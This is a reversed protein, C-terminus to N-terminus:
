PSSCCRFGLSSDTLSRPNNNNFDCRDSTTDDNTHQFSGGRNRCFDSAGTSATCSDEWEMLNGGMDYLGAYGGVCGAFHGVSSPGFVGADGSNCKGVVHAAGYPWASNSAGGCAHMWQSLAPNDYSNLDNTGGGIKGCLRKGAWACYAYADCWDVWAIPMDYDEAAPPWGQTPQFSTNWSCYSPQGSTSGAKAALFMAYRGTTVETADISYSGASVQGAVCVGNGNYTSCQGGGVCASNAAQNAVGCVHNTCVARLCSNARPAACDADVNCAYCVGLSCHPTAGSCDSATVLQGSAGCTQPANNSCSVPLGSGVCVVSTKDPACAYQGCTGCATNPVGALTGCGGCANLATECGLDGSGTCHGYGSLCSAAPIACVGSV